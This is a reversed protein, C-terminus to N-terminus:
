EAAATVYPQRLQLLGFAAVVLAVAIAAAIGGPTTIWTGTLILVLTGAVWLFDGASFYMVASRSPAPRTAAYVLHLANLLLGAGLVAVVWTPAPPSGLFAAVPAPAIVFLAGFGLCSAANAGMIAKLRSM